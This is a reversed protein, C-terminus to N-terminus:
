GEIKIGPLGAAWAVIEASEETPMFGLRNMGTNVKIHIKGIKGQRYAEASFAGIMDKRYMTLSIDKEIAIPYYRESLYGLVLVSRDAVVERVELAESLVAVAFMHVGMGQFVHATTRCDLGYCQSKLVACIKVEDGIAQRIASFNERLRGTHIEVWADRMIEPSQNEAKSM